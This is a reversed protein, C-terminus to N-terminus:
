ETVINHRSNFRALDDYISVRGPIITVPGTRQTDRRFADDVMQEFKQILVPNGGRNKQMALETRLMEHLLYLYREPWDPAVSDTAVVPRAQYSGRLMVAQSPAPHVFLYRTSAQGPGGSDWAMAVPLSSTMHDQLRLQEYASLDVEAVSVERGYEDYVGGRPRDFDSAMAYRITRISYTTSATTAGMYAPDIVLNTGDTVSTIRYVRNSDAGVYFEQGVMGSTWVTDTGAVATSDNTLAVTGTTYPAKLSVYMGKRYTPWDRMSVLRSICDNIWSKIQTNDPTLAGRWGHRQVYEVLSTLTYAM